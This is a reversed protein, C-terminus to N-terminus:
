SIELFALCEVVDSSVPEVWRYPHLLWTFVQPDVKTSHWEDKVDIGHHLYSGIYEVSDFEDALERLALSALNSAVDIICGKCWKM